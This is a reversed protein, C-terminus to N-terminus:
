ITDQPDVDRAFAVYNVMDGYFDDVYKEILLDKDEEWLKFELKTELVQKFQQWTVHNVLSPSNKDRCADDFFPKVLIRKTRAQVRLEELVYHLREEKDQCLVKACKDYRTKDLLHTPEADVIRQPTRELEPLTFVRNVKDCFDRYDIVKVPPNGTVTAFMDAVEELVQPGFPQIRSHLGATNLASLFQFRTVKGTRLRDFDFFFERIRIRNIYVARQVQELSSKAKTPTISSGNVAGNM